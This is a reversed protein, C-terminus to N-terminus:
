GSRTACTSASGFRKSTTPSAPDTASQFLSAPNKTTHRRSGTPYNSNSRKSGNTGTSPTCSTASSAPNRPCTQAQRSPAPPRGHLLGACHVNERPGRQDSVRERDLGARELTPRRFRTILRVGQVETSANDTTRTAFRLPHRPPGRQWVAALFRIAFAPPMGDAQERQQQM